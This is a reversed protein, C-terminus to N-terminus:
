LRAARRRALDGRKGRPFTDGRAAAHRGGRRGARDLTLLALDWDGRPSREQLVLGRGDPRWDNPVMRREGEALVVAPGEGAAPLALLRWRGGAEAAVAIARGDPRWTPRHPGLGVSRRSLTGSGTDLVWLDAASGTGVRLAVRTGDPSVRPQGFRRPTSLLRTLSGDPGLRALYHEPPVPTAPSYLLAPVSGRATGGVAVHAAGNRADYRVGAALVAPEGEVRARRPSFPAAYLLGARAFLLRDGAGLWGGGGPLIRGFSADALVTRREGTRLSM